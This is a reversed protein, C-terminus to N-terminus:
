QFISTIKNIAYPTFMVLGAAMFKIVDTTGQLIGGDLAFKYLVTLGVGIYLMLIAMLGLLAILRSSSARLESTTAVNGEVNKEPVAGAAVPLSIDAEESVADALSWPSNQARLARFIYALFYLIALAIVIVLTYAPYIGM